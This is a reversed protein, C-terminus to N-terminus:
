NLKLYKYSIKQQHQIILFGPDSAADQMTEVLLYTVNNFDIIERSHHHGQLCFDVRNESLIDCIEYTEEMTFNGSSIIAGNTRFLNVHSCVVCNRYSNRKEKLLNKLWKLQEKGLTGSGSDLFIYLDKANPTQVTLYYSSTGFYRKYDEWQNHYLDHNGAITFVTDPSQQTASDFLLANYVAPMAGKVNILDGLIISFFATADNRELNLFKKLNDTTNETHLDTCVYVQYDDVPVNLVLPHHTENWAMSQEFRQNVSISGPSVLGTLDIKDCATLCAIFVM